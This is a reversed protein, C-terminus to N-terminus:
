GDVWQEALTITFPTDRKQPDYHISLRCMTQPVPFCSWLILWTHELSRTDDNLSTEQHLHEPANQGIERCSCLVMSQFQKELFAEGQKIAEDVLHRETVSLLTKVAVLDIASKSIDQLVFLGTDAAVSLQWIGGAYAYGNNEVEIFVTDNESLQIAPFNPTDQPILYRVVGGQQHTHIIIIIAGNEYGGPYAQFDITVDYPSGSDQEVLTYLILQNDKQEQEDLTKNEDM